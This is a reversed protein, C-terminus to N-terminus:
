PLLLEANSYLFVLRPPTPMAFICNLSLFPDSTTADKGIVLLSKERIENDNFLNILNNQKHIKYLHSIKGGSKLWSYKASSYNTVLYKNEQKM